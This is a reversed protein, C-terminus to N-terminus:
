LHFKRQLLQSLSRWWQTLLPENPLKFRVVVRQGPWLSVDEDDDPSIIFPFVREQPKRGTPDDLATQISGGAQFGLAASPLEEQGVEPRYAITGGIRSEPRGKVRIDVRDYARGILMAGVQQDATARIRLNELGMVRGLRQGKLVYSGRIQDIDPAVWTGDLRTRVELSRVRGKLNTIEIDLSAMSGAIMKADVERGLRKAIVQRAELAKRRAVLKDMSASLEDNECWLLLGKRSDEPSVQRGSPRYYRVFGDEEAFVEARHGADVVGEVRKYYPADKLGLGVFAGAAVALTSAVARRRVRDLEGSTALYRIFKFIPMCIWGFVAVLGFAIAMVALPKPLRDTLFILIIAFIFIRYATSAIGYIVFWIREGWSHAPNILRRVSWAFRRVLYYVYQRSRHALNPIELLDSLIYYADYRLLPNGNFLVTSVSALFMINYCIGRLTTGEATNAWIVAAIAAIALEVLMGAAGVVIRRWKSRFAWASSADVYPLPMFVLFMVGMVHVEGGSGTRQGFTKCAFAHGFEHFIKVVVLAVYLWPLNGPDFVQLARNALEGTRGAIFYLGTGVIGLWLVLGYWSFLWGLLGVWRNLFNEPDILPIRIFLVSTLQSQIERAKRKRYRRLLGEADPPLEAQLL